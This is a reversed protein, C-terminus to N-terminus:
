LSIVRGEASIQVIAKDIDIDSISLSFQFENTTTNTYCTYQDNLAVKEFINLCNQSESLERDVLNTVVTWIVGVLVITLLMLLLTAIVASMGKRDKTFFNYQFIESKGRKNKM